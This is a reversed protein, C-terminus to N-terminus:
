AKHYHPRGALRSALANRTDVVCRAHAAVLDWDFARHDTAVLVVDFSALTPGDLAVSRREGLDHGPVRPAVPVYPDSYSCHAGLSELIEILRISPSETVIDVEPKYALGLVLVRAGSVPTGAAALAARTRAVVHDPMARSIEGALEVLRTEVGHRRAIWTLYFPDIPLCHGGLGPGPTFRMFGFPKTAAADIVDWVDIGLAEFAVKLENVLAINVARFVNELLKAAEAVEASAVRHVREVASSYLAEALRASDPCTGGVLKAIERASTGRGPDEREPSFALWVDRGPQLGRERFLAGLVDRTTGPWTTSELVVLTGPKVHAALAAGAAIVCSLDPERDDRLPTPVCIVAVDAESLRVPDATVDFRRTALLEAVHGAPLHHLTNDGRALRAVKDADVDYGLCGFGADVFARSIPLGVSGLGVVVVRARRAAIRAALGDATRDPPVGRMVASVIDERGGAAVDDERSGAAAHDERGRAAAHDVRDTAAGAEGLEAAADVRSAHPKADLDDRPAVSTWELRPTAAAPEIRSPARVHAVPALPERVPVVPALPERVPAVPALPLTDHPEM